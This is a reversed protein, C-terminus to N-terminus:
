FHSSAECKFTASGFRVKNALILADHLLDKLPVSTAVNYFSYAISLKKHVPHDVVTSPLSYFSILDTVVREGERDHSVVFTYVVSERPMLWHAFEEESMVPCVKFNELHNTLLRHASKIDSAEM